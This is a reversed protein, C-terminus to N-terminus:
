SHCWIVIPNMDLAISTNFQHGNSKKFTKTNM